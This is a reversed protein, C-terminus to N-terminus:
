LVKYNGRLRERFRFWEPTFVGGVAVTGKSGRRVVVRGGDRIGVILSGRTFEARWGHLKLQASLDRLAVDGIYVARHGGAGEGPRCRRLRPLQSRRHPQVDTRRRKAPEPATGEEIVGEVAAVKYEGTDTFDLANILDDDIRIRYMSTSSTVDAREGVRPHQIEMSSGHEACYSLVERAAQQDAHILVMEQTHACQAQLLHKLTAGDCRGEYLIDTIVQAQVQINVLQNVYKKPADNDNVTRQPRQREQKVQAGGGHEEDEDRALEDLVEQAVDDHARKLAKMLLPDVPAGYDEGLIDVLEADVCPFMLHKSTYALGKPLFLGPTTQAREADGRAQPGKAGGAEDDDSDDDDSDHAHALEDDIIERVTRREGRREAAEDNLRAQERERWTQLEEPDLSVQRHVDVLLEQVSGGEASAILQELRRAVTNEGGREILMITNDKGEGWEMLLDLSFGINMSAPTAFVVMPGKVDELEDKTRCFKVVGRQVFSMPNFGKSEFTKRAVDSMFELAQEAMAVTCEGYESLFVLSYPSTAEDGYKELFHAEVLGLVELVRGTIDCPILVNGDDRLTTMIMDFLTEDRHKVPPPDLAAYASAICITAKSFVTLDAGPLHRERRHNFAPAYVIEDSDKVIHWVCAGLMYGAPQPSIFIDSSEGSKNQLRHVEFFKLKHVRSFAANMQEETFPATGAREARYGHTDYLSILGMQAVPPTAYVAVSRGLQAVLYPLAGLHLLSPGSLLICDVGRGKVQEVIVRVEEVDFEDTWGCDLLINYGGRTHEDTALDRAKGLELLYCLPGGGHAGSLPTLFCRKADKEDGGGGAAATQLPQRAFPPPEMPPGGLAPPLHSADM